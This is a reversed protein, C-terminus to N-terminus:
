SSSLPSLQGSTLNEETCFFFFFFLVVFSFPPCVVPGLLQGPVSRADGRTCKHCVGVQRARHAVEVQSDVLRGSKSAANISLPRLFLAGQVAQFFFFFFFVHCAQKTPEELQKTM